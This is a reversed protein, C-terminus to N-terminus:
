TIFGGAIVLDDQYFVASQGPTVFEGREMEVRVLDGTREECRDSIDFNKSGVPFIRCPILESQYRVKVACDIPEDPREIFWNIKEVTFSKNLADQRRAVVVTNNRSDIRKVYWPGNGLNL